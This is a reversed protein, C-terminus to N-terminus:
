GSADPNAEILRLRDVISGVTSFNRHWDPEVNHHCRFLDAVVESSEGFGFFHDLHLKTSACTQERVIAAPSGPCNIDLLDRVIQYRPFETLSM